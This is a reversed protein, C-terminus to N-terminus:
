SSLRLTKGNIVILDPEVGSLSAAWTVFRRQSVQAGLSALINVLHDHSPTGDAIPRFRRLLDRKEQGCRAIDVVHDAGAITALLPM